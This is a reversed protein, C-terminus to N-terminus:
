ALRQRVDVPKSLSNFGGNYAPVAHVATTVGAVLELRKVSGM